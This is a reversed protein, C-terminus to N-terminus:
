GREAAKVIRERDARAEILGVAINDAATLHFRVFDQFIVGINRRLELLSYERLDHGDLLIRGEDPDMRTIRLELEHGPRREVLPNTLVAYLGLVEVRLGRQTRGVVTGPM